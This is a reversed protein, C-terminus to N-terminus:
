IISKIKCDNKKYWFSGYDFSIIQIKKLTGILRLFLLCKTKLNANTGSSSLLLIIGLLILWM